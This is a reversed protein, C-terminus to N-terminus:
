QQQDGNTDQHGIASILHLATMRSDLRAKLDANSAADSMFREVASMFDYILRAISILAFRETDDKRHPGNDVYGFKMPPNKRRHLDATSGYSHLMACRAAYVDVGTYQYEQSPDTKLCKNVWAMFDARTHSHQGIPCALWSMTDIGVYVLSLAALLADADQAKSIEGLLQIIPTYGGAGNTM